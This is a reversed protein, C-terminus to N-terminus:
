ARSRFGGGPKKVGSRTSPSKVAKASPRAPGVYIDDHAKETHEELLDLLMNATRSWIVGQGVKEFFHLLLFTVVVAGKEQKAVRVGFAEPDTGPARDIDRGRMLNWRHIIVGEDFLLIATPKHDQHIYEPYAQLNNIVTKLSSSYFSFVVGTMETNLTKAAEVNQLASVVDKKTFRTKVEVVMSAADPMVIKISGDSHIVPYNSQDYILIDCQRSVRESDTLDCIFGQGVEYTTPAHKSLFERLITENAGGSTLNHKKVFTQMRNIRSQFEGAIGMCYALVSDSRFRL